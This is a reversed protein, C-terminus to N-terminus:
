YQFIQVKKVGLSNYEEDDDSEIKSKLRIQRKKEKEANEEFHKLQHENFSKRDTLKNSFTTIQKLLNIDLDKIQHVDGSLIYKNNQKRSTVIIEESKLFNNNILSMM